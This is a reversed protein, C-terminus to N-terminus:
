GMPPTPNLNGDLHDGIKKTMAAHSIFDGAKFEEETDFEQSGVDFDLMDNLHKGPIGVSIKYGNWNFRRMGRFHTKVYTRKTKTVREHVRVIHFIRKRKGDSAPIFERDKFFYPTRLLDVSFSATTNGKRARVVLDMSANEYYNLAYTFCGVTWKEAGMQHEKCAILVDRSWDMKNQIFSGGGNRWKKPLRHEHQVREKLLMVEASATVGVHYVLPWGYKSQWHKDTRTAYFLIVKYIDKANTPQLYSQANDIRRFYIFKPSIAEKTDYDPFAIAGAGLNTGEQRWRPSLKGMYFSANKTSALVAGIKAVHNYGGHDVRRLKKAFYMYDDLRDLIDRRFYWRGEGEVDERRNQKPGTVPM